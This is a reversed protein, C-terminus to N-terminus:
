GGPQVVAPFLKVDIYTCHAIFHEQVCDRSFERFTECTAALERFCMIGFRGVQWFQVHICSYSLITGSFEAVGRLTPLLGFNSFDHM